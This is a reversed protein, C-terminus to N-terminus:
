GNVSDGSSEQGSEVLEIWEDINNEDLYLIGTDVFQPIDQGAAAQVLTLVSLAGQMQPYTSYSCCITGSKVYQLIQLLNEAGVFTIQDQKGAEEIAASIGIPAAADVCLYGALDPNASITAAAQQQATEINDQSAGGEIVEIDPYEALVKWFTDYREAHNPATTVGHMVAVKGKEGLREALDRAELEAQEAFDNGVACLGSGPVAADFLIVPIGQAQIEQIIAKSGEWDCPDIMIGDPKQAAAQELVSNQVTIEASSPAVYNVTIDIGYADKLAKAEAQAGMDVAEFWEHVCKPILFFTLEKKGAEEVAEAADEEAEALEEPAESASEEEAATPVVAFSLMLLMTMLLAVVKKM